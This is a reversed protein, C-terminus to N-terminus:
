ITIRCPFISFWIRLHKLCCFIFKKVYDFQVMITRIILRWNWNNKNINVERVINSFSVFKKDWYIRWDKEMKVLRRDTLTELNGITLMSNLVCYHNLRNRAALVTLEQVTNGSWISMSIREEHLPRLEIHRACELTPCMQSRTTERMIVLHRPLPNLLTDQYPEWRERLKWVLLDKYGTYGILLLRKNWRKGDFWPHM